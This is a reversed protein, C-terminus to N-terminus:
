PIILRQHIADIRFFVSVTASLSIGVTSARVAWSLEVWVFMICFFATIFTSGALSLRRGLRSEILYAGLQGFGRDTNTNLVFAFFLLRRYSRSM